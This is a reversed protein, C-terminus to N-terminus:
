RVFLHWGLWLWSLLAVTRGVPHRVAAYTVDGLTARRGDGFRALVELLVMAALLLAFGTVLVASSM